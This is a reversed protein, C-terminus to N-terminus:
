RNIPLVRNQAVHRESHYSSRVLPGSEVYDFGLEYGYDRYADFQGPTIFSDVQLHLKTPQLYQGITLVDLKADILDQMLEHAEEETEGLGVMFGSKTRAGAEKTRLLQELSREYKAQPRVKRYLRKVTEMNHSIVDAGADIVRQLADWDSKFDPILVEITTEPNLKKVERITAAWVESGKDKLEDRNVSTIVCHKVSMLKVAEAVRLPEELDLTRPRGTAVACFSCSRTCVNGLIMFTATGEGWCEGMNPCNGSECITHLKYTDVLNRVKRYKEGVPLKVKLWPPKKYLREGPIKVEAAAQGSSEHEM